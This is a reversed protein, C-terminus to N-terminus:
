TFSDKTEFSMIGFPFIGFEEDSVVDFIDKADMYLDYINEKVFRWVIQSASKVFLVLGKSTGYRRGEITLMDKTMYKSLYSAVRHIDVFKINVFSGGGLSVWAKKIWEFEIFRDVLVHLHYVGRKQLEVIWIYKISTGYKRKLYIRFKSWVKFLYERSEKGKLKFDYGPLTLTLMRTLGNETAARIIGKKVKKLKKPGCYGCNWPKCLHRAVKTIVKEKREPYKLVEVGVEGKFSYKGCYDKKYVKSNSNNESDLSISVDSSVEKETNCKSKNILDLLASNEGTMYVGKEFSPSSPCVIIILLSVGGRHESM